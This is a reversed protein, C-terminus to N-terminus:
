IMEEQMIESKIKIINEYWSLFPVRYGTLTFTYKKNVKIQAYLDSSNFKGRIWSDTNEYVIVDGNERECFILYKSSDGKTIREVKTVVVTEQHDNFYVGVHFVIAGLLLLIALILSLRKSMLDRGKLFILLVIIVLVIEM